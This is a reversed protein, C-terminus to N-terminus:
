PRRASLSDVTTFASPWSAQPASSASQAPEQGAPKYSGRREPMGTGLHLESALATATRPPADAANGQKRDVPDATRVWLCASDIPVNLRETCMFARFGRVDHATGFDIGGGSHPTGREEFCVEPCVRDRTHYMQYLQPVTWLRKQGCESAPM